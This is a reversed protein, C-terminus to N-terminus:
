TCDALRALDAEWHQSSQVEPSSSHKRPRMKGPAITVPVNRKRAAALDINAFGAAPQAILRLDSPAAIAAADVTGTTPVLVKARTVQEHVPCSPDVRHLVAWPPLIAELRCTLNTWTLTWAGGLLLRVVLPITFMTGTPACVSKKGTRVPIGAM